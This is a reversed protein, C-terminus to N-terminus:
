PNVSDFEMLFIDEDKKKMMYEERAFKELSDPNKLNGIMKKDTRIEKQYYDISNELKEIEKNLERHTLYSNEDIFLMWILFVLLSIVYKNGIFRVIKKNKLQKLTM